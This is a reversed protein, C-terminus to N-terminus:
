FLLTFGIQVNIMNTKSAHSVFIPYNAYDLTVTHYDSFDGYVYRGKLESYLSLSHTKENSSKTIRFLIGAGFGYHFAGSVRSENFPEVTSGTPSYESSASLVTYGGFGEFFPMIQGNLPQFRLVLDIPVATTKTSIIDFGGSFNFSPDYSFYIVDISLGISIPLPKIFGGGYFSFGQGSSKINDQFDKQPVCNTFSIGFYYNIDDSVSYEIQGLSDVKSELSFAQQISIIFIFTIIITIKNM